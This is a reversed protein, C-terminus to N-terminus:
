SSMDASTADVDVSIKTWEPHHADLLLTGGFRRFQGQSSFLGLHRVSFAISGFTQDISYSEEARASGVTLFIIM